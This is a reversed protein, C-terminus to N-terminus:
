GMREKELREYIKSLNKPNNFLSELIEALEKKTIDFHGVGYIRFNASYFYESLKEYNKEVTAM